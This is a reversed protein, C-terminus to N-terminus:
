GSNLNKEEHMTREETEDILLSSANTHVLSGTFEDCLREVLDSRGRRYLVDALKFYTAGRGDKKNWTNLLAVRRQDETNNDREIAALKEESLGFHYGTMKWDVIKGAIRVRVEQPCEQEFDDRKLGYRSLIDELSPGTDLSTAM